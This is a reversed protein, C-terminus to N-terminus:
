APKRRGDRYGAFGIWVATISLVAIIISLILGMPMSGWADGAHVLANMFGLVWMALLVVVYVMRRTGRDGVERVFDAVGWILAVLSMALGGVLLWSAFNKWQVQFSSAYALDGLMAGVFLPLAAALFIAQLPHIPVFM